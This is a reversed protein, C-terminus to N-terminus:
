KKRLSRFASCKARQPSSLLRTDEALYVEGMGGAGLLSLVQYHLVRQRVLSAGEESGALKAAVNIAPEEIFRSAQEHSDLMAEVEQRLSEDGNCAQAIFVPREAGDRQLASEFINTIQRWREPDM